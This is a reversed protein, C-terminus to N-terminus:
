RGYGNHVTTLIPNTTSPTTIVADTTTSSWNGPNETPPTETNGPPPTSGDIVQGYGGYNNGEPSQTTSSDGNSPGSNSSDNDSSDNNTLNNYVSYTEGNLIPYKWDKPSDFKLDQNCTDTGCCQHCVSQGGTWYPRCKNDSYRKGGKFNNKKNNRCAERQKCGTTVLEYAGNRKREIIECSTQTELCTEVHGKALCLGWNAENCKWCRLGSEGAPPPM